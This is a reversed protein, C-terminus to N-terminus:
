FLDNIINAVQESDYTGVMKQMGIKLNPFESKIKDLVSIIESPFARFVFGTHVLLVDPNYNMINTKLRNFMDVEGITGNIIQSMMVNAPLLKQEDSLEIAYSHNILYKSLIPSEDMRRKRHMTEDDDVSNLILARLKSM